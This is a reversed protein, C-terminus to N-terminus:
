RFDFNALSNFSLASTTIGKVCYLNFAAGPDDKHRAVHQELLAELPAGTKVNWVREGDIYMLWGETKPKEGVDPPEGV